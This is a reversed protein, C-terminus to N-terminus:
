GGELRGLARRIVALDAPTLGVRTDPVLLTAKIGRRALREAIVDRRTASQNGRGRTEDRAAADFAESADVALGDDCWIVTRVGPHGSLWSEVVSWKGWGLGGELGPDPAPRAEDETRSALTAWTAGPFPSMGARSESPWSTLWLCTLGPTTAILDLEACLAPSVLVPGFLRGAVVDDGWATVGHVPSVVGDVDVILVAQPTV